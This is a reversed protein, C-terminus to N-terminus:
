NLIYVELNRRGFEFANKNNAMYVDINYSGIAGGRDEAVFIGKNPKDKFYPIYIRTGFPINKGTAITRWEKVYKGSATIGYAPDDPYKGCSEYSLTYATVNMVLRKDKSYSGRSIIPALEMKIPEPKVETIEKSINVEVEKVDLQKELKPVNLRSM